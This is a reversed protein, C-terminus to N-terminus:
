DHSSIHAHLSHSAFFVTIFLVGGRGSFLDTHASMAGVQSVWKLQIFVTSDQEDSYLTIRFYVYLKLHDYRRFPACHQLFERMTKFGTYCPLCLGKRRVFDLIAASTDFRNNWDM